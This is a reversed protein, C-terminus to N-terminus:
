CYGPCDLFCPLFPALEFNCDFFCGSAYNPWSGVDELLECLKMECEAFTLLSIGSTSEYKELRFWFLSFFFSKFM